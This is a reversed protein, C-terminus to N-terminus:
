RAIVPVMARGTILVGTEFRNDELNWVNVKVQGSGRPSRLRNDIWYLPTRLDPDLLVMGERLRDARITAHTPQDLPGLHDVTDLVAATNTM